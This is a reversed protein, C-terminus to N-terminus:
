SPDKYCSPGKYGSQGNYGTTKAQARLARLLKCCM